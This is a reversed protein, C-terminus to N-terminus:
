MCAGHLQEATVLGSAHHASPWAHIHATVSATCTCSVALWLMMGAAFGKYMWARRPNHDHLPRFCIQLNIYTGAHMCAMAMRRQIDQLSIM